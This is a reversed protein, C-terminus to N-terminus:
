RRTEIELSGGSGALIGFRLNAESGSLFTVTVIGTLPMGVLEPASGELSGDLFVTVVTEPRFSTRSRRRLDPSGAGLQGRPVLWRPRLSQIAMYLNTENTAVLDEYRLVNGLGRGSGSSTSACAISLAAVVLAIPFRLRAMM